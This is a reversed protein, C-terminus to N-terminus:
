NRKQGNSWNLFPLWYRGNGVMYESLLFGYYDLIIESKGHMSCTFHRRCNHTM